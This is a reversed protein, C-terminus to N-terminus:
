PAASAQDKVRQWAARADAMDSDARMAAQYENAAEDLKGLAEYALGKGYFAEANHPDHKLAKSYRRLAKKFKKDAAYTAALVAWADSSKKNRDLYSLCKRRAGRWNGSALDARAERLELVVAPAAPEAQLVPAPSEQTEDARSSRPVWLIAGFILIPYLIKRM